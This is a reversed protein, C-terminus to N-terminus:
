NPVLLDANFWRRHASIVALVGIWALWGAAPEPIAIVAPPYPGLEYGGDTFAAVLDSSNFLADGNWDGEGWGAEDNSEYKGAGFVVVLDGSNFESDFNSDGVWTRRLEKIWVTHDSLDVAGDNNVDFLSNGTPQQIEMVLSDIDVADLQGDANFDGLEAVPGVLTITNWTTPDPITNVGDGFDTMLTAIDPIAGDEGNFSLLIFSLGHIDGDKAVYDPDADDMAVAWPLATELVYGTDTVQGTVVVAEHQDADMLPPRRYIDPGFDDNTNVVIDYISAVFEGPDVEAPIAPDQFFNDPDNFPNFTPQLTDQANYPV